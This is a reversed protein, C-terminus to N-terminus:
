PHRHGTCNAHCQAHNSGEFYSDIEERLRKAEGELAKSITVSGVERLTDVLGQLCKVPGPAMRIFSSLEKEALKRSLKEPVDYVTAREM